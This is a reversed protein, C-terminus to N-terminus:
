RTAGRDFREKFTTLAELVQELPANYHNPIAAEMGSLTGVIRRVLRLPKYEPRFVIAIMRNGSISGLQFYAVDTWKYKQKTVFSGMEFGEEDLRLYTSNPLMMVLSAPVGLSFFGVTVWGLVTAESLLWIGLWVMAVSALLLLVAKKRSAVFTVTNNM